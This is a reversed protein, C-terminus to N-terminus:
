LNKLLTARDNPLEGDIVAMLLRELSKGLERGAPIGLALLDQGTVALTELSFCQGSEVIEQEMARAADLRSLREGDGRALAMARQVEVLRSFQETGLRSLWRRISKADPEIADNQHQVLQAASKQTHADLRLGRLVREVRGDQGALPHLLLALKVARDTGTYREVADASPCSAGDPELEPIIVAIVDGYQRLIEGAGKGCLLKCLETCIREPAIHRLLHANQRIADSTEAAIQFGYTAAFRLARMMRLADEQFRDAARGVCAIRKKSLDEQGGFPDVLGESPSYAMANVTFDRRALDTRVDEVFCVSDPRRNDSYAGETRFTTIEYSGDPLIVTVTGHRLGTEVIRHGACCAEVQQPTAATCLDWDQPCLGLLSDRVCGGVVYTDFGRASLLGILERAGQPLTLEM